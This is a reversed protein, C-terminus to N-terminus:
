NLGGGGCVCVFACIMVSRELAITRNHNETLVPRMFLNHTRLYGYLPYRLIQDSQAETILGRKIHMYITLIANGRNWLGLECTGGKLNREACLGWVNTM